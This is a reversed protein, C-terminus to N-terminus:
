RDGTKTRERKEGLGGRGRYERREVEPGIDGLGNRGDLAGYVRLTTVSRITKLGM